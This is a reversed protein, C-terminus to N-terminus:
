IIKRIEEPMPVINNTLFFLYDFFMQSTRAKECSDELIFNYKSQNVKDQRRFPKTDLVELHQDM